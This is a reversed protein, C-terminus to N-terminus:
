LVIYSFYKRVISKILVLERPFYWSLERNLWEEKMIFIQLIIPQLSQVSQKQQRMAHLYSALQPLLLPGNPGPYKKSMFTLEVM